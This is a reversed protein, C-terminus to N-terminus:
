FEMLLASVSDGKKISESDTTKKKLKLLCLKGRGKGIMSGIDSSLVSDFFSCIYGNHERSFWISGRRFEPRIGLLTTPGLYIAPVTEADFTLAGRMKSLAPLCFLHLCVLASVPNGALCFVFKEGVTAFTTPKRNIILFIYGPKLEVRGFHLKANPISQELVPKLLDFEGM